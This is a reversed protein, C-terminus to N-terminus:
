NSSKFIFDDFSIDYFSTNLAKTNIAYLCEKLLIQPYYENNSNVFISDSLITSLYACCENGKSAIPIYKCHKNDKLIKKYEFKTHVLSKYIKIKTNIYKSNNYM